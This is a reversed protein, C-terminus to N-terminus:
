VEACDGYYHVINQGNGDLQVQGAENFVAYRACYYILDFGDGTNLAVAQTFYEGGFSYVLDSLGDGNMDIIVPGYQNQAPESFISGFPLAFPVNAKRNLSHPLRSFYASNQVKFAEDGPQIRRGSQALVNASSNLFSQITFGAFLVFAVSFVAVTKKLLRHM